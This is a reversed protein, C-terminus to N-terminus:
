KAKKKAKKAKKRKRPKPKTILYKDWDIEAGAQEAEALKTIDRGYSEGVHGAIHAAEYVHINYLPKEKGEPVDPSLDIVYVYGIDGHWNRCPQYVPVGNDPMYLYDQNPDGYGRAKRIAIKEANEDFDEQSVLGPEEYHKASLLVLVSAVREPDWWYPYDAKKLFEHAADLFTRLLRLQASPHGDCHHYLLVGRGRRSMGDVLEIQCRTSM